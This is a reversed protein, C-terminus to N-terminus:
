PLPCDARGTDRSVSRRWQPHDLLLAEIEAEDEPRTGVPWRASSRRWRDLFEPGLLTREAPETFAITTEHKPGTPRGSGVYFGATLLSVRVATSNSYTYFATPGVGCRSRLDVFTARTWLPTDVRQSFADYLVIDPRPATAWRGPLEGEYLEWDIPARSSRWRGSALLTHPGGHRLRPFRDLHALALRLADLDREFSVLHLARGRSEEEWLRVLETANTAAGLGVDWVVLPPGDSSALERFGPQEVYLRRAEEDPPDGVHMVEGSTQDRIATSPHEETGGWLVYRGLELPPQRRHRVRPRRIPADEDPRDLRERQEAYFLPFSGAALHRRMRGMLDLWFRVNHIGLLTWSLPERAVFLHHLYARSYRQCTDCPCAEDLPRPDLRYVGRRLDIRGASTYVRGRQALSTPMICDFLDVGRHVAELLDLPTGVGMLYRPRDAPLMAAVLGTVEEREAKGEGVALGGIAFGDFGQGDVRMSVLTEASERRLDLYSAGQVIGFLGMPAAGRAALSRAAWRHTRAMAARAEAEPVTSAVCHDLVMGIDAGITLQAEVSTEPTLAFHRGSDHHKLDVGNEDVRANEGFAYVQYGGSDTLIAGDWRMLRHLGGFARLVDLGPRQALHWANALMMTAGAPALDETRQSRVTGHTGVPMFQPTDVVGHPTLIQGLRAATGPSPAVTYPLRSM